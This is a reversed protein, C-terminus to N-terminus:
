DEEVEKAGAEGEEAELPLPEPRLVEPLDWM